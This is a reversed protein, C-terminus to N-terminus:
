GEERRLRHATEEPLVSNIAFGTGAEFGALRALRPLIEIHWHFDEPAAEGEAFYERPDGNALPAGHFILNLPPNGLQADLRALVDGLLGALEELEGSTAESISAQHRRPILIMEWPFRSAWPALATWGDNEAILRVRNKKEAVLLDCLLCRGTQQRHRDMRDQKERIVAPVVPTALIQLHPHSLTAGAEAGQNVFQLIYRHGPDRALAAYREQLVVLLGALDEQSLSALGARHDPSYAIVEHAGVGSRHGFLEESFIGDAAQDPLSSDSGEPGLAPYLNPFVRLTWGPTDAPEGEPRGVALIEKTTRSEHGPCFPCDAPASGGERQLPYENPRDQRGAAMIVWRGTLPDQRLHSM